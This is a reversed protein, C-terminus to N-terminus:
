LEYLADDLFVQPYRKGCEEFVSRIFITMAHFKPPKNLPLDYDSNLKIKMYDKGYYNEKDGNIAKIKNKIGDWVDAYKKLLWKNENAPNDFILNKNGHKKEIYGSAYNVLLFLPNASHINGCDGIKLQLTDIGKYHKKDIKLFNSKFKKLNHRQLLLLNSKQYRNTQSKGNM